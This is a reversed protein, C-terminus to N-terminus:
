KKFHSVEVRSKPDLIGLRDFAPQSLRLLVNRNIGTDPLQGVIKVHVVRNNMLNRIKLETGISLERHLALFKTTSIESIVAAIGIEYKREFGDEDLRTYFELSDSPNEFVISDKIMLKQGIRLYDSTLENWDKLMQLDVGKKRSISLLTEGTQVLYPSFGLPIEDEPARVAVTDVYALTDMLEIKVSDATVETDILGEGIILYEGPSIDNTSLNNLQRLDKVKLDYRRAISYLTEGKQILHINKKGLEVSDVLLNENKENYLITLEQGISIANGELANIEVISSISSMYRQSLSFLTEEQEVRHIVFLGAVRKESRVSDRAFEAGVASLSILSCLIFVSRM